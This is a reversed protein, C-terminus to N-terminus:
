IFMSPDHVLHLKLCTNDDLAGTVPLNHDRQFQGIAEDLIDDTWTEFDAPGYGLNYLRQRAALRHNETSPDSGDEKAGTGIHRLSGAHLKFVPFKSEIEKLKDETLEAPPISDALGFIDVRLEMTTEEDFVPIRIYGMTDVRGRFVPASDIDGAKVVYRQTDIPFRVDAVGDPPTKPTSKLLQIVWLRTANECPSNRSIGQYFRCAFTDFQDSFTRDNEKHQKIRDRGKYWFRKECAAAAQQAYFGYENQNISKLDVMTAPCPWKEPNLETGPKFLYAIVRRNIHNLANRSDEDLDKESKASLIFQPNFEGCGQADGKYNEGNGRCLFDATTLPKENLWRMYALFLDTRTTDDIEDEETFQPLELTDRMINLTELKWEDNGLPQMYLIDWITEDHILVAYVSMVRRRSLQMNYLEISVPDTHGFLSLPPLTGTEKNSLNDRLVHLGSFEDRAGPVLFSSDFFFNEDPLSTCGIVQLHDKFTNYVTEGTINPAVMAGFEVEPPNPASVGNGGTGTSAIKQMSDPM